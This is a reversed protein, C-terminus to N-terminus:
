HLTVSIPFHDSSKKSVDTKIVEYSSLKESLSASVFFYDLRTLPSNCPITFEEHLYTGTPATSILNQKFHLAVDFLKTKKLTQTVIFQLKGEKLYKKQHKESLRSIFQEDYADETSLSNFDGCLIIHQYAHVLKLVQKIEQLRESETYPCPHLNCIATEGISTNVTILLAANQLLKLKKVTKFPFKSLTAVHFAFKQSESLKFYPFGLRGAFENLLRNNHLDFGNAEQLALIDPAEKKVLEEILPLRKRGGALINYSLLKM